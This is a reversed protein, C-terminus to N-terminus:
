VSWFLSDPRMMTPQSGGHLQQSKFEPGRSFCDTNKVASGDRWGQSVDNKFLSKSLAHYYPLFM